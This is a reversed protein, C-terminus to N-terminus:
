HTSKKKKNLSFNQFSSLHLLRVANGSLLTDRGINAATESIIRAVVLIVELLSDLVVFLRKNITGIVSFYATMNHDLLKLNEKIKNIVMINNTFLCLYKSNRLKEQQQKM